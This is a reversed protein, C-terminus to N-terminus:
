KLCGQVMLALLLGVIGVLPLVLLVMGLEPGNGHDGARDGDTMMNQLGQYLHDGLQRNTVADYEDQLGDVAAQVEALRKQLVPARAREKELRAKAQAIADELAAVAADSSKAVGALQAKAERLEVQLQELRARRERDSGASHTAEHEM